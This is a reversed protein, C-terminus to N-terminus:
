PTIKGIIYRYIRHNREDQHSNIVTYNGSSLKQNLVEIPSTLDSSVPISEVGYIIRNKGANEDNIKRNESITKKSIEYTALISILTVVFNILVPTVSILKETM